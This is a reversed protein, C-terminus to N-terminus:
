VARTEYRVVAREKSVSMRLFASTLIGEGPQQALLKM